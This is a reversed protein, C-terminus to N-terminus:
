RDWNDAFPVRKYAKAFAAAFQEETPRDYYTATVSGDTHGMMREIADPAVGVEWRMFTEWSNRLNRFPIRSVGHRDCARRWQQRLTQQTFVGGCGDGYLWPDGAAAREEAIELLRDGLRSPLLVPRESHDTKLRDVVDATRNDVQRVIPAVAFRVGDVELAHVEDCRVAMSEGVRCSGFAALLFPAEVVEGRLRSAADLLEPLTMTDKSQEPGKPPMKLDFDFPNKDCAEYLVAKNVVQRLLTRAVNAVAWTKTLIWEQYDVRRVSDCPVDAWRKGSHNKWNGEYLRLTAPAVSAMADPLWWHEYAYGITPCGGRRVKDDAFIEALRRDADWRTGHVTESVRRRGEPTDAWWRLRWTDRDIKAVSGFSSRQRRTM